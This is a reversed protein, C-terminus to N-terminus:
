WLLSTGPPATSSDASQPRPVPTTTVWRQYAAAAQLAEAATQRGRAVSNPSGSIFADKM